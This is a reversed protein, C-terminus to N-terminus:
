ERRAPIVKARQQAAQAALARLQGKSRPAQGGGMAQRTTPLHTSTLQPPMITGQRGRRQCLSNWQQRFRSKCTLVWWSEANLHLPMYTGEGTIGKSVLAETEATIEELLQNVPCSTMASTGCASLRLSDSVKYFDSNHPGFKQLRVRQTYVCTSALSCTTCGGHTNARAAHDRASAAGYKTDALV